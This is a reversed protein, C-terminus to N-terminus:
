AKELDFDNRVESMFTDFDSFNESFIEEEALLIRSLLKSKAIAEENIRQRDSSICHMVEYGNKTVVVEGEQEVLKVFTSTNKMDRVPVTVTM